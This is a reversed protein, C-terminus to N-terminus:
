EEVQLDIPGLALSRRPSLHRSGEAPEVLATLLSAGLEQQDEAQGTDLHEQEAAVGGGCDSEGRGSKSGWRRREGSM